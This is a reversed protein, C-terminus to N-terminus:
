FIVFFKDAVILMIIQGRGRGLFRMWITARTEDQNGRWVVLNSRSVGLVDAVNKMPFRGEAVLDAAIDTKKHAKFFVQRLIENELTKRRLVRELERVRDTTAGLDGSVIEWKNLTLLLTGM